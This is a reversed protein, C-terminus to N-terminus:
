RWVLELLYDSDIQVFRQKKLFANQLVQESVYQLAEKLSIERCIDEGKFFIAKLM